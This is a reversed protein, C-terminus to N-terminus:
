PKVEIFSVIGKAQLTAVQRKANAHEQYVGAIVRYQTKVAEVPPAQTTIGLYALIGQAYAVGFAAQESVDDFAFQDNSDLFGGEVIISPMALERIFGFYDRGTAPDIRTKGGRSNQGLKKVEAEIAQGLRLDAGMTQQQFKSYWFEFGDGGGANWHIAIAFDPAFARCQTLEESLPNNHNSTRSLKVEVNHQRLVTACAQATILAMEAEVLGNAMAGPDSGGHGVALFVKAM